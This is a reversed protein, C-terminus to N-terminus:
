RESRSFATSTLGSLLAGMWGDMWGDSFPSCPAAMCEVTCGMFWAFCQEGWVWKRELFVLGFAVLFLNQDAAYIYAVRERGM